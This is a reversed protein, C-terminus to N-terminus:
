AGLFIKETYKSKIALPLFQDYMDIEMDIVERRPWDYTMRVASVQKSLPYSFSKENDSCRPQESTSNEEITVDIFLPFFPQLKSDRLLDILPTLEDRCRFNPRSVLSTFGNLYQDLSELVFAQRRSIENLGARYDSPMDRPWLTQKIRITRLKPFTGLIDTRLLCYLAHKANITLQRLHPRVKELSLAMKPQRSFAYKKKEGHKETTTTNPNPLSNLDITIAHVQVLNLAEIQFLKCAELFALKKGDQWRAHCSSSNFDKSFKFILDVEDLLYKFICARVEPPLSLIPTSLM